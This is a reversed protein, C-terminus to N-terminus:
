AKLEKEELERDAQRKEEDTPIMRQPKNEPKKWPSMYFVRGKDDIKKWWKM